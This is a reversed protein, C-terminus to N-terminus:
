ITMMIRDGGVSLVKGLSYSSSEQGRDTTTYQFGSGWVRKFDEFIVKPIIQLYMIMCFAPDATLRKVQWRPLWFCIEHKTRLPCSVQARRVTAWWWECEVERVASPDLQEAVEPDIARVRTLVERM